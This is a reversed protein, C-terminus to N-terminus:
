PNRFAFLFAELSVIGKGMQRVQKPALASNMIALLCRIPLLRRTLYM